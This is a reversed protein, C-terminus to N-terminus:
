AAVGMQMSQKKKIIAGYQIEFSEGRPSVCQLLASKVNHKKLFNPAKKSGLIVACSALVDAELASTAFVTALRIDTIAPELTAPDIIHHSGKKMNQGKRGFTGSTAIAGKQVPCHVLWQSTSDLKDADQISITLAAGDKDRGMTAIDGGLSIWYGTVPQHKLTNALQDALYGKGCGGMDIATDEPISASDGEIILQQVDAVKSGTYDEHPANQRGPAVSKVYGARQLAPLIFPNYLGDTKIGLDKANALLDRFESTINTKQGSARNFTSLESNPLFRSFRKDFTYVQEWLTDFLKKTEKPSLGTVLGLTVDGGLAFKTQVVEKLQM